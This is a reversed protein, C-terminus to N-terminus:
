ETVLCLSRPNRLEYRNGDPYIDGDLSITKQEQFARIVTNYVAQDFKVRIRILRGDRVSLITANGDFEQPERDLQVVQARIQEDYSPEDRRFSRAAEALIDASNISFQFRSDPANLPRLDSWILDIEVGRGKTALDAVSDCLNASVGHPVALKFSDLTDDAFVKEVATNAHELAQALRKTAARPFPTHFFEDGMDEQRVLGAQVPSHLTLTYGEYYSSMPRVNDLFEAVDSSMKGRYTAQPREAARAGAALMNYADNLLDAGQRLSLPERGMGNLSRMRIVDGGTAILDQFVDLQSREEVTALVAVTEAMSEAYDALTDRLPVLLEWSRGGHEKSYITAPRSGWPGENHWRRSNLYSRLSLISLRSLADKDKIDVLM